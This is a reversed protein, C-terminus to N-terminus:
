ATSSSYLIWRNILIHIVSIKFVQWFIFASIEIINQSQVIELPSLLRSNLRTSQDCLFGRSSFAEDMSHWTGHRLMHATLPMIGAARLKKFCILPTKIPECGIMITGWHIPFAAQAHLDAMAKPFDRPGMHVRGWSTTHPRIFVNGSFM